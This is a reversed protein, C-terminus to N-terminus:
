KFIEYIVEIAEEINSVPYMQIKDNLHTVEEYQSKPMIFYKIDKDIATYVKQKLGGIMGVTHDSNITGTGVVIENIKHYGILDFYLSLTYMMGGSPGGTPVDLGPLTYKPTSSKIDYKPYFSFLDTKNKSIMIKHIELNREVELELEDQQNFYLRMEYYNNFKQGDLSIIIDGINLESIKKLRYDVVMGKFEYNIEFDYGDNIALEYATVVAQEFAATKQILGRKNKESKTLENLYTSMPEVTLKENLEYIMRGFPTIKDMSLVSVSHLNNLQNIGEIEIMEYTSRTDYPSTVSFETKVTLAIMIYVYAFIISFFIKKVKNNM